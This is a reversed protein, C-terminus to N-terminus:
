YKRGKWTYNGFISAFSLILVYFPYILEYIIHGIISTPSELLRNVLSSFLVKVMIRAVLFLLFWVSIFGTILGIWGVIMVLNDVIILLVSFIIGANKHLTWKSLWRKRQNLLESFSEKPLTSVVASSKKVFSIGSPYRSAVKLLLFEDDGTPVQHNGDYGNVENFIERRYAMNAGNSMSPKGLGVLSAAYGILIGFDVSQLIGFLNRSEMKVPGVVLKTSEGFSLNFSKLWDPQVQCDGDTTLVIENKAKSVGLELAPKKGKQHGQLQLYSLEFNAKFTRVASRTEDESNDDVVIVEFMDRPYNLKEIDSLLNVINEQENRVPVLISFTLKNEPQFKTEVKRFAGYLFIFILSHIVAVGFVVWEIM